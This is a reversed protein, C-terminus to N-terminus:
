TEKFIIKQTKKTMFLWAIERSKCIKKGYYVCLIIGRNVIKTFFGKFFETLKKAM